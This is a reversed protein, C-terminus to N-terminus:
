FDDDYYDPEFYQEGECRSFEKLIVKDLDESAKIKGNVLVVKDFNDKNKIKEASNNKEEELANQLYKQYNQNESNLGASIDNMIISVYQRTKSNEDNAAILTLAKDIERYADQYHGMKRLLVALNYHSEYNMPALKIAQCYTAGADENDDTLQYALALNYLADYNKPNIKLSNKYAEIALAMYKRQAEWDDGSYLSKLRYTVGINYYAISKNEKYSIKNNYVYPIHLLNRKTDIIKNYQNIASDFDGLKETSIIGYNMRAIMLRPNYEFAKSYAYLASEYDEYAVYINGLNYWAGYHGPYLKLGRNYSKIAKQMKLQKFYKDGKYVYYM